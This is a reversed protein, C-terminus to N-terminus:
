LLESLRTTTFEVIDSCYERREQSDFHNVDRFEKTLDYCRMCGFEQQFKDYLDAAKRNITSTDDKNNDRGYKAGIIMLAGILCGCLDGKTGGIGSKFASAAKLLEIPVDMVGNDQITKVIAEGCSFGSLYIKISNQGIDM